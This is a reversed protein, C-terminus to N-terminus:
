ERSAELAEGKGDAAVERRMARPSEVWVFYCEMFDDTREGLLPEVKRRLERANVPRLHGFEEPRPKPPGTRAVGGEDYLAAVTVGLVRAIKELHDVSLRRKGCELQTYYPRSIGLRRAVQPARKRCGTLGDNGGPRRPLM